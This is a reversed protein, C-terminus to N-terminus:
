AYGMTRALWILLMAGAVSWIFGAPHIRGDAPKHVMSGVVGALYSGAIGLVMRLILGM